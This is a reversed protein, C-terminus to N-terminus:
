PLLNWRNVNIIITSYTFSPWDVNPFCFKMLPRFSDLHCVACEETVPLQTVNKPFGDVHRKPAMSIWYVFTWPYTMFLYGPKNFTFTCLSVMFHECLKIAYRGGKLAKRCFYRLGDMEESRIKPENMHFSRCRSICKRSAISSCNTVGTNIRSSNDTCMKKSFKQRKGSSVITWM